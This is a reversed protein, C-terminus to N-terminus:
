LLSCACWNCICFCSSSCNFPIDWRMKLKNSM